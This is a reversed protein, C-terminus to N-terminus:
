MLPVVHLIDHIVNIWLHDSDLDYHLGLKGVEHRCHLCRNNVSAVM